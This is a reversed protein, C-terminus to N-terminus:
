VAPNHDQRNVPDVVQGVPSRHHSEILLLMWVVAADIEMGSCHVDTDDIVASEGALVHSRVGPVRSVCKRTGYVEIGDTKIPSRGGVPQEQEGQRHLCQLREPGRRGWGSHNRVPCSALRSGVRKFRRVTPCPHTELRTPLLCTAPLLRLGAPQLVEAVYM